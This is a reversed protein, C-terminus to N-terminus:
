NIELQLGEPKAKSTFRTPRAQNSTNKLIKNNIIDKMEQTMMM